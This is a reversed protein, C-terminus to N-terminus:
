IEHSIPRLKIDKVLQVSKIRTQDLKASKVPKRTKFGIKCTKYTKVGLIM